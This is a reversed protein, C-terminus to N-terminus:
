SFQLMIGSNVPYFVSDSYWVHYVVSDITIAPREAAFITPILEQNLVGLQLISTIVENIAVGFYSNAVFTPVTAAGAAIATGAQWVAADTPPAAGIQVILFGTATGTTPTIPTEPTVPPTIPTEPTVNSFNESYLGSRARTNGYQATAAVRFAFNKMTSEAGPAVMLSKSGSSTRVGDNVQYRAADMAFLSPNYFIFVTQFEVATRLLDLLSVSLVDFNWGYLNFHSAIIKAAQTLQFEEIGDTGALIECDAVTVPAGRAALRDLLWRSSTNGSTDTM